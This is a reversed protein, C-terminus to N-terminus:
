ISTGALITSGLIAEDRDTTTLEALLWTSQGLAAPASPDGLRLMPVDAARLVLQITFDVNGGVARRITDSIAARPGASDFFSRFVDFGLPGIRVRFRSGVDWM